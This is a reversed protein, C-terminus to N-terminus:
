TKSNIISLFDVNEFPYALLVCKANSEFDEKISEGNKALYNKTKTYPLSKEIWCKGNKLIKPFPNEDLNFDILWLFKDWLDQRTTRCNFNQHVLFFQDFKRNCAERLLRWDLTKVGSEKLQEQDVLIDLPM